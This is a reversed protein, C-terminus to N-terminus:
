RSDREGRLVGAAPQALYSEAQEAIRRLVETRSPRELARQIERLIFESMSIGELAARAKLQRHVADPVNRIQIM